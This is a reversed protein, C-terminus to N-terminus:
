WGPNQTLSPNVDLDYQPIPLLAYKSQYNAFGADRTSLSTSLDGWRVLDEWRHGEGSLEVIREHKLQNRFADQTMGTSLNALGARNRVKNVSAYADTTKGQENLAEAYLLLIDAFRLYRYNNGSAFNEYDQTGDNLFKRFYVTHTTAVAIPDGTVNEYNRSNFTQGYVLTYAPGRVDTSDYLFSADVRPDRNGSTTKEKLFEWICWRRAQGDTFGIPRPAVFPPFSSGYNLLDPNGSADDDHDNALNTLNEIEFVSESNNETTSLFNDRYNSVLSYVGAGSGTIFWSFAQEAQNYQHMQMYTKGLMGYAAGQTARGLNAQNYSQPLVLTADSFDKVCQAYVDAQSSTNPKDDAASTKLLIPVNGWLTGLYYYFFGRLFKAEGLLQNRVISDMEINPVNDLVQNARNIGVYCDQWTTITEWLNYDTVNFVDFNNILIGNPSTSFGEDSRIITLFFQNRALGVRHFTSYISNIGSQADNATKWFKDITPANPNDIDLDHKCSSFVFLISLFFITIIKM